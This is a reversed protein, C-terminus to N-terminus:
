DDRPEVQFYFYFTTDTKERLEWCSLLEAYEGGM